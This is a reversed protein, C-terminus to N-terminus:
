SEAVMRLREIWTHADQENKFKVRYVPNQIDKVEFKLAFDTKIAGNNRWELTFNRIDSLPYVKPKAYNDWSQLAIKKGESSLAVLCGGPNHVADFTVGQSNLFDNRKSKVSQNFFFLGIAGIILAGAVIDGGM